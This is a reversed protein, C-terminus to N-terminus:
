KKFSICMFDRCKSNKPLKAERILKKVAYVFLVSKKRPSYQVTQRDREKKVFLTTCIKIVKDCDPGELTSQVTRASFGHRSYRLGCLLEGGGQPVGWLVVSVESLDHRVPLTVCSEEEKCINQEEKQVM